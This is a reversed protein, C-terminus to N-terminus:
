NFIFSELMRQLDYLLTSVFRISQTASKFFFKKKSFYNPIFNSFDSVTSLNKLDSKHFPMPTYTHVFVGYWFCAELHRVGSLGKCLQKSYVQISLSREM